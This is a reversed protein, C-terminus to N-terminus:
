PLTYSRIASGEGGGNLYTGKWIQICFSGPTGSLVVDGASKETCYFKEDTSTNPLAVFSFGGGKYRGSIRGMFVKVSGQNDKYLQLSWDGNSRTDLVKSASGTVWQTSGAWGAIDVDLEDFNTPYTGSALQYSQVAQGVSKLLTLAQTGRSKEVAKQYQPLAVAALIGIILVVVLLEILTFAKADLRGLLCRKNKM